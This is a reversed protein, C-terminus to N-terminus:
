RRDQWDSEVRVPLPSRTPDPTLGLVVALAAGLASAIRRLTILRHMIQEQHRIPRSADGGTGASAQTSLGGIYNDDQVLRYAHGNGDSSRM